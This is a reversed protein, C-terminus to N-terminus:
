HSDLIHNVEEEPLDTFEVIEAVSWNKQSLKLVNNIQAQQLGKQLGRQEGIAIGEEKGIAIGERIAKNIMSNHDMEAMEQMQCVRLMEPDRAISM